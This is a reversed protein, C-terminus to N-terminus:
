EDDAFPDKRLLDKQLFFEMKQSDWFISQAELGRVLGFNRFHDEDSFNVTVSFGLSADVYVSGNGFEKNGMRYTLVVVNKRVVRAYSIRNGGVLTYIVTYEGLPKSFIEEAKSKPFSLLSLLIMLFLKM